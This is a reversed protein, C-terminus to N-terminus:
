EPSPRFGALEFQAGANEAAPPNSAGRLAQFGGEEGGAKEGRGCVGSFDAFEAL